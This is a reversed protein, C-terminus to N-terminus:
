TRRGATVLDRVLDDFGIGELSPLRLHVPPFSYDQTIENPVVVCWVGAALAAAAGSPSDEIAVAEQPAVGLRELALLYLDPAPKVREVDGATCLTDFHDIIGHPRLHGEVWARSSNSALGLKLGRAKVELLLPRVGPRLSLSAILEREWKQRAAEIRARDLPRGTREELFGMADFAGAATGVAKAWQEPPLEVGHQAYVEAWAQYCAAETDLITGDFDFIVAKIKVTEM